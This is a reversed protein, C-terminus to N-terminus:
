HAYFAKRIAVINFDLYGVTMDTLLAGKFHVTEELYIPITFQFVAWKLAV